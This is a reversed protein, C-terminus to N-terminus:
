RSKFLVVRLNADLSNVLVESIESSQVTDLLRLYTGDENGFMLDMPRFGTESNVEDSM